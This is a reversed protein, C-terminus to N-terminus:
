KGGAAKCIDDIASLSLSCDSEGSYETFTNAEYLICSAFRGDDRIREFEEVFWPEEHRFIHHNFAIPIGARACRNTTETAFGNSLVDKRKAYTRLTAQDLLEEDIWRQWQFEINAPYALRRHAPRDDGFWDVNLNIRMQKGRATVLHKAERLFDTYANGRVTAVDQGTRDCQKTVAPNFGYEEPYDTHSSHNEVRFEIGDVGADLIDRICALWHQRVHPETECLAGSLHTNRGRAFAIFGNTGASSDSDLTLMSRGGGCDFMVGWDRFSFRDRLYIGAASAHVGMLETHHADYARLMDTGVNHFDAEGDMFDTTVLVYPARINLGSLTLVRVPAGAATVVEDDAAKVDAEASVVADAYEFDLDRREYRYNSASTWIQLHDKTIRTSADDKKCLKITRIPEAAAGHAHDDKHQIRLHPHEAVFPDLWALRGGIHDLTGWQAAEPSGTPFVMNPGTEYPKFYAYVEQGHRHGAQVAEALPSRGHGYVEGHNSWRHRGVDYGTPAVYGGRQDGYYGWVLRSVGRAAFLASMADIHRATIPQEAALVDDVFDVLVELPFPTVPTM